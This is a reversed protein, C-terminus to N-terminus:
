NNKQHRYEIQINPETIIMTLTKAKLVMLIMIKIKNM